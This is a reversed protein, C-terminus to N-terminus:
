CVQFDNEAINVNGEHALWADFGTFRHADWNEQRCKVIDSADIALCPCQGDCKLM